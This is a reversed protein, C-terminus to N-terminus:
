NVSPGSKVHLLLASSTRARYRQLVINRTHIRVTKAGMKACMRFINVSDIASQTGWCHVYLRYSCTINVKPDRAQAAIIM